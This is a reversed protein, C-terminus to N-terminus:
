SAELKILRFPLVKIFNRGRYAQVTLGAAECDNIFRESNKMDEGDFLSLPMRSEKAAEIGGLCHIGIGKSYYRM